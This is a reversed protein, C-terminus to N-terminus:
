FFPLAIDPGYDHLGCASYLNSESLNETSGTHNFYIEIMAEVAAVTAFIGCPGQEGQDKANSVYDIIQHRQNWSFSSPQSYTLGYVQLMITILLAHKLVSKYTKM